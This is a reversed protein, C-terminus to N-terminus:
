IKMAERVEELTKEAVLRARKAGSDLIEDIVRPNQELENRKQYIPEMKTIMISALRKKCEVCGIQGKECLERLEAINDTQDFVKYFAYVNCVDPHGPDNKRIRAPDTIMMKV